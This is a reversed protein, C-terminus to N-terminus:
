AVSRGNNCRMEEFFKQTPYYRVTMGEKYYGHPDIADPPKTIRFSMLGDGPDSGTYSAEMGVIIKQVYSKDHGAPMKDGKVVKYRKGSVYNM